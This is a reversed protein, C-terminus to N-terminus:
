APIQSSLRDAIEHKPRLGKVQDAVEGDVFFLLTPISRINFRAALEQHEDVNVKAVTARDGFDDALEDIVPELQICPGCWEAWFDVLVPQDSQVVHEEFNSETLTLPKTATAM